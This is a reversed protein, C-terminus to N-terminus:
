AAAFASANPAGGCDAMLQRFADGLDDSTASFVPWDAEGEAREGIAVVVYGSEGQPQGVIWHVSGLRPHPTELGFLSTAQADLLASRAREVVDHIDEDRDSATISDRVADPPNADIM